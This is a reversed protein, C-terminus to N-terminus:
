KTGYLKEVGLGENEDMAISGIEIDIDDDVLNFLVSELDLGNIHYSSIGFKDDLKKVLHGEEHFYIKCGKLVRINTDNHHWCLAKRLIVSINVSQIPSLLIYDDADDYILKGSYTIIKNIKLTGLNNKNSKNSM